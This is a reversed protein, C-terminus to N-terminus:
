VWDVEKNESKLVIWIVDEGEVELQNSHFVRNRFDNPYRETVPGMVTPKLSQVNKFNCRTRRGYWFSIASFDM